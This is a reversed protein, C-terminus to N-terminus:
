DVDVRKIEAVCRRLDLDFVNAIRQRIKVLLVFIIWVVVLTVLVCCPEITVGAIMAIRGSLMRLLLAGSIITSIRRM